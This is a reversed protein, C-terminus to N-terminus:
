DGLANVGDMERGPCPPCGQSLSRPERGGAAPLLQTLGANRVNRKRRRQLNQFALEGPLRGGGVQGWTVLGKPPPPLGSKPGARQEGEETSVSAYLEGLSLM